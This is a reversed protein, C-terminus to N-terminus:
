LMRWENERCVNFNFREIVRGNDLVAKLDFMCRGTRDDINVRVRGGAELISRGLIDEEWTRARTNSAHFRIVDRGTDNVIWVRRDEAQAAVPAILATVALVAAAIRTATKLM